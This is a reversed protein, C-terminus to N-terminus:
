HGKTYQVHIFTTMNCSHKRLAFIVYNILNISFNSRGKKQCVKESKALHQKGFIRM